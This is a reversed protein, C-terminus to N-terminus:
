IIHIRHNMRENHIYLNHIVSFFCTPVQPLPHNVAFYAESFPEIMMQKTWSANNTQEQNKLFLSTSCIQGYPSTIEQKENLAKYNTYHILAM